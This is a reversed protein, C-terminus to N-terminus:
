KKKKGKEGTKVASKSATLMNYVEETVEIIEGEKHWLRVDKTLKVKM